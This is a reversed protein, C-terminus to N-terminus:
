RAAARSFVDFVHLQELAARLPRDTVADLNLPEDEDVQDPRALSRSLQSERSPRSAQTVEGPEVRIDPTIGHQQISRGRPTYYLSVTLKLGSGDSLDYLTQVSGKGYTQQGLVIARGHDQLAGAVIESASASRDDVLVVLPGRYRTTARRARWSDAAVGDRGRTSVIEGDDLFVDAVRISERLLGGTNGRLDLVLGRLSGGNAEEVADIAERLQDATNQRFGLVHVHGLGRVPSDHVVTQRVVVDRTLVFSTRRADGDRGSREIELSVETGRVGRLRSVVDQITFGTADEEDIRVIRDGERLGVSAAPGGEFVRSVIVGDDTARIEIGIGVYANRNEEKMARFADPDMFASHADLEAVLGRVAGRMLTEHDVEHVYHRQVHTLVEAFVGLQTYVDGRAQVPHPPSAALGIVVGLLLVIPLLLAPGPRRM